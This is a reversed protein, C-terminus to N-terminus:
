LIIFRLKLVPTATKTKYFDAPMEHFFIPMEHFHLRNEFENM